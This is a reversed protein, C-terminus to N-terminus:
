VKCFFSCILLKNICYITVESFFDTDLQLEKDLHTHGKPPAGVGRNPFESSFQWVTYSTTLGAGGRVAVVTFHQKCIAADTNVTNANLLLTMQILIDTVPPM